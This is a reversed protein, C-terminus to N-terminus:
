KRVKPVPGYNRREADRTELLDPDYMDPWDPKLEVDSWSGALLPQGDHTLWNDDIIGDNDDREYAPGDSTFWGAMRKLFAVIAFIWYDTGNKM